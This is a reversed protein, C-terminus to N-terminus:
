CLLESLYRILSLLCREEFLLSQASAIMMTKCKAL